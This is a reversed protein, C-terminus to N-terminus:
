LIEVHSSYFERNKRVKIEAFYDLGEAITENDPREGVIRICVDLFDIDEPSLGFVLIYFAYSNFILVLICLCINVASVLFVKEYTPIFRLIKGLTKPFSASVYDRYKDM